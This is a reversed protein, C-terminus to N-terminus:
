SNHTEAFVRHAVTLGEWAAPFGAYPAIHLLTEVIEQETAGNRLAMRINLELGQPRGLATLVAITVLSKTRRDLRPRSWIEGSLFEVVYQEFDPSMRRWAARTEEARERGLMEELLREGRQFRESNSM